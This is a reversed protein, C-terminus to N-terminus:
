RRVTRRRWALGALGGLLLVGLAGGGIAVLGSGGDDPAPVQARVAPTGTGLRPERDAGRPPDRDAAGTAGAPRPKRQEPKSPQVGSGFLPAESSSGRGRAAGAAGTRERAQQRVRDVPLQYESGAPSDPDVQPHEAQAPATLALTCLCTLALRQM